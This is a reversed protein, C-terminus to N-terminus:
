MQKQSVQTEAQYNPPLTPATFPKWPARARTLALIHQGSVGTVRQAVKEVERHFAVQTSGPTSSLEIFMWPTSVLRHNLRSKKDTPQPKSLLQPLSWLLQVIHDM